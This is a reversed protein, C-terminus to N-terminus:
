NVRLGSFSRIPELDNAGANDPWRVSKRSEFCVPCRMIDGHVTCDVYQGKKKGQNTLGAYGHPQHSRCLRTTPSVPTATPAPSIAPSPQRLWCTRGAGFGGCKRPLMWRRLRTRRRAGAMGLYERRAAQTRRDGHCRISGGVESQSPGDSTFPERRMQNCGTYASQLYSVFLPL